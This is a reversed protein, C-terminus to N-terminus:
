YLFSGLTLMISRQSFQPCIIWPRSAVRLWTRPGGPAWQEKQSYMLNLQLRTLHPAIRRIHVRILNGTLIMLMGWSLWLRLFHNRNTLINCLSCYVKHHPITWNQFIPRCFLVFLCDFLTLKIKFYTASHWHKQGKVDAEQKFEPTLHVFGTATLCYALM